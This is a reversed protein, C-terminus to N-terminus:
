SDFFVTEDPGQLVVNFAWSGDAQRDALLTHRREAPVLALVPDADNMPEDAFYMRTWCRSMVGRAMVSVLIHPAQVGGPWQRVAGPKVTRFEFRGGSATATRGFGAFAPDAREHEPAEPHHFRGNADAQWIEVLGDEVPSGHGDLVAGAVVIREGHTADTVLCDNGEPRDRVLLKFFPGVTSFPTLARM